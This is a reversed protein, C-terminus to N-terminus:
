ITRMDTALVPPFQDIQTIPTIILTNTTFICLKSNTNSAYVSCHLTNVHIPWIPPPNVSQVFVLM